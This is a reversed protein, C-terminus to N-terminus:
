TGAPICPEIVFKLKPFLDQSYISSSLPCVSLNFSPRDEVDADPAAATARPPMFPAPPPPMFPAPPVLVPVVPVPPPRVINMLNVVGEQLEHLEIEADWRSSWADWWHGELQEAEMEKADLEAQKAQLAHALLAENIQAEQTAKEAAVQHLFM